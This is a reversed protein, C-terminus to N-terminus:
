LSRCPTKPRESRAAVGIGQHDIITFSWCLIKCRNNGRSLCVTPWCRAMAPPRRSADNVSEVLCLPRHHPLPVKMMLWGLAASGPVPCPFLRRSSRPPRVPRASGRISCTLESIRSKNTHLIIGESRDNNARGLCVNSTSHPSESSATVCCRLISVPLPRKMVADTGQEDLHDPQHHQSRSPRYADREQTAAYHVARLTGANSSALIISGLAHRIRM